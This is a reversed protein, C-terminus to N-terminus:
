ARDFFHRPSNKSPCALFTVSRRSRPMNTIRAQESRDTALQINGIQLIAAAVRFLNLQEEPTFGVTDFANRLLKFEARDDVGEVDKRTGKLYAYDDPSSSLLLMKKLEPEDGRLLQYFIHFSRENEARIAVRSKELLYWDINAGAIAGVSTFEIRM